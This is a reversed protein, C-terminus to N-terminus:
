LSGNKDGGRESKKELLIQSECAECYVVEPYELVRNCKKCSKNKDMKGGGMM